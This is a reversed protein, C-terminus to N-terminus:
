KLRTSYIHQVSNLWSMLTLQWLFTILLSGLMCQKLTFARKLDKKYMTQLFCISHLHEEWVTQPLTIAQKWLISIMTSWSSQEYKRKCMLNLLNAPILLQESNLQSNFFNGKLTIFIYFSFWIQKHHEDIHSFFHQNM